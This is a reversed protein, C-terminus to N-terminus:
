EGHWHRVLAGAVEASSTIPVEHGADEFVVYDVLQRGASTGGGSSFIATIDQVMEARDIVTDQGGLIVLIKGKASLGRQHLTHHAHTKTASDHKPDRTNNSSSCSSTKEMVTGADVDADADAGVNAATTTSVHGDEGDEGDQQLLLIDRLAAWDTEEGEGEGGGNPQAYIPCERITSMFAGIFGAHEDVQWRVVSSVTVDPRDRSLRASDFAAGGTADSNGGSGGGVGNPQATPTHDQPGPTTLDNSLACPPPTSAEAALMDAGSAEDDEASTSKKKKEKLIAGAAAAARALPSAPAPDAPRIRRRVLGHIFWEPLLGSEYLFRSAGGVHRRRILGSSAVLDLSRLLHPFQVAFSM